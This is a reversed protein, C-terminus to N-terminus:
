RASSLGDTMLGILRHWPPRGGLSLDLIQHADPLAYIMQRVPIPRMRAPM